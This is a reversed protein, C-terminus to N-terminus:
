LLYPRTLDPGAFACDRVRIIAPPDLGELVSAEEFVASVEREMEDTRLAKVVLRGRSFRNRALFVVGLGGAGPTRGPGYRALPFPAYHDPDLQAAGLLSELAASWDRRELAALYAGHHAVAQTDPESAQRALRHFDAQAGEFDGAALELRGVAELL